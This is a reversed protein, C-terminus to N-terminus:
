YVPRNYILVCSPSRDAPREAEFGAMSCSPASASCRGPRASSRPKSCRAKGPTWCSDPSRKPTSGARQASRLADTMAERWHGFATAIRARLADNSAATEQGLTGLLCGRRFDATEYDRQLLEFYRELRELWPGDGGLANTLVRSQLAFYRDVAELAFAEKTDFHYYFSGKPVGAAALVAQVGTANYGAELLLCTGLDLLADRTDAAM